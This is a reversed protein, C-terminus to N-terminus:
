KPMKETGSGCQETQTGFRASLIGLYIGYEPTQADVVDQPKPGIQPVVDKEWRNLEFRVAREKGATRNVRDVVEELVQREETVDAPSSVFIKVLKITESQVM